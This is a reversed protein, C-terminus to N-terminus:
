HTGHTSDVVASELYITWAAVKGTRTDVTREGLLAATRPSFVLEHLFGRGPYGVAIGRQGTWHTAGLLQIGPLQAAVQFLAARLRPPAYTERLLDGIIVFTEADGAPGGEVKRQEILMRLRDPNTPLTTLDVYSLGGPGFNTADAHFIGLPPRGAAIWARRDKASVFHPDSDREVLRGRGDPAIWAQRVQHFAVRFYQDHQPGADGTDAESLSVSKTYVYQGPGPPASPAQAAAILATHKLVAAAAPPTGHGSAPLGLALLCLGAVAAIGVLGLLPRRRARYGRATREPRATAIAEMLMARSRATVQADPAGADSRYESLLELDNM